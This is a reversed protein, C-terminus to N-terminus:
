PNEGQEEFGWGGWIGGSRGIGIVLEPKWSNKQIEKLVKEAIRLANDWTFMRKWKRLRFYKVSAVIMTVLTTLGGLGTFIKEIIIYM